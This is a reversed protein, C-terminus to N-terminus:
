GNIWNRKITNLLSEVKEKSIKDNDHKKRKFINVPFSTNKENELIAQLNCVISRQIIIKKFLTFMDNDKLIFLFKNYDDDNRNNTKLLYILHILRNQWTEELPKQWIKDFHDFFLKNIEQIDAQQLSLLDNIYNNIRNNDSKNIFWRATYDKTLVDCIEDKSFTSNPNLMQITEEPSKEMLPIDKMLVNWCIYEYPLLQKNKESLKAAFDLRTKAYEPSILFKGESSYFKAIIRAIEDQTIKYFGFTDVIGTIDNIVIAVMSYKTDQNIRTILIAQNGAGDPITTYFKAPTSNKLLNKLYNDAKEQTAGALKLKKLALKCNEQINVNDCIKLLHNIPEIALSSKSNGLLNIVESKFDDDFDSYLIPYLINALQESECSNKLSELLIFKDNKQISYIFDLFDLMSEPNYIAKDLLMQTEKDLVEQPNDFYENLDASASSYAGVTRLLQVLKYKIDDDYKSSALYSLIIEEVYSVPVLEKIVFACFDCEKEELKVFEKIFIDFFTKKDDIENLESIIASLLKENYEDASKVSSIASLVKARIQLKSLVTM